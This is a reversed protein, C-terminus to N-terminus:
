VVTQQCRSLTDLRQLLANANTHLHFRAQFCTEARQGMCRQNDRPLHLWRALLRHIGEPNDPEVLGAGDEQIERWINVKNSILVPCGCALAEAVAVGFNEQHSPLVFARAARMAGWKADGFIPGPFHVRTQLGVKQVHSVLQRVLGVQDPGAVVLHYDNSGAQDCFSEVLMQCGKKEHVRGLFLFFPKQQLGPCLQFFANLQALPPGDPPLTGLPLVTERCRYLRFSERALLREDESTFLVARADRLVRYEAWPWYLWKKLHKLPYYRKFWPDLMGHTFLFYGQATGRLARWAGFSTYQWLGNVIIHDFRAANQRLWGVYAPAYGYGSNRNGLATLPLPFERAWPADARDLSVVEVQHGAQM